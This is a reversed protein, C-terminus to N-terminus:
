FSTDLSPHRQTKMEFRFKEVDSVNCLSHVSASRLRPVGARVAKVLILSVRVMLLVNKKFITM